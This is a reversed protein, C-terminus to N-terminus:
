RAMNVLAGALDRQSRVQQVQTQVGLADAMGRITQAARVAPNPRTVVGQDQRAVAFQRERAAAVSARHIEARREDEYKPRERIEIRGILRDRDEFQAYVSGDNDVRVGKSGIPVRLERRAQSVARPAASPAPMTEPRRAAAEVRLVQTPDGAPVAARLPRSATRPAATSTTAATAALRTAASQVARAMPAEPTRARPKRQAAYAKAATGTDPAQQTAVSPTLMDAM